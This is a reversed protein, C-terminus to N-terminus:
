QRNLRIEQLVYNGSSKQKMLIYVSYSGTATVLNGIIFKSTGDTAGSNIIILDKPPNKVLFDKLVQEAQISSYANEVNNITIPVIPDFYKVFAQVKNVRLGAVVDDIPSQARAAIALPLSFLLLLLAFFTNKM